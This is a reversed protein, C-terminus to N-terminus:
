KPGAKKRFGRRVDAELDQHRSLAWLFRDKDRLSLDSPATREVAAKFRQYEIWREGIDKPSSMKLRCMASARVDYVTFDDKYLATLVATAMPLRFGWKDSIVRFKEEPTGAQHLEATLTRAAQELDSGAVGRLRRAMKTVARHSKWRIIFFLDYASLSGQKSFRPAIVDFIYGEENYRKHFDYPM